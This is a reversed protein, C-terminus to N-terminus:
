RDPELTYWTFSAKQSYRNMSFQHTKTRSCAIFSSSSRISFTSQRIIFIFHIKLMKILTSSQDVVTPDIRKLNNLNLHRGVVFRNRVTNKTYFVYNQDGLSSIKQLLNM